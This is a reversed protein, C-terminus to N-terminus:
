EGNIKGVSSTGYLFVFFGWFTLLGVLNQVRRITITIANLRNANLRNSNKRGDVVEEGEPPPEGGEPPPYAANLGASEAAKFAATQPFCSPYLSQILPHKKSVAFPDQGIKAAESSAL